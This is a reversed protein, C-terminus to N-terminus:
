DTLDQIRKILVERVTEELFDFTDVLEVSGYKQVLERIEQQYLVPKEMLVKTLNLLLREKKKILETNGISEKIM